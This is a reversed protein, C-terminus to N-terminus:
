YLLGLGNFSLHEGLFSTSDISLQKERSGVELLENLLLDEDISSM